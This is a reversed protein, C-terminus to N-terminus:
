SLAECNLRSYERMNPMAGLRSTIFWCRSYRESVPRSMGVEGTEGIPEAAGDAQSAEGRRGRGTTLGGAQRRPTKKRCASAWRRAPRASSLPAADRGHTRCRCGQDEWGIPPDPLNEAREPMRGLGMPPYRGAEISPRGGSGRQRSAEPACRPHVAAYSGRAGGDGHSAFPYRRNRARRGGAM